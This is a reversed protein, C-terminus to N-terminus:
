LFDTLKGQIALLPVIKKSNKDVLSFYYHDSGDECGGGKEEKNYKRFM